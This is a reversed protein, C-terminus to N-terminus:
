NCGLEGPGCASEDTLLNENEKIEKTTVFVKVQPTNSMTTLCPM